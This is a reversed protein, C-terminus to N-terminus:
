AICKLIQPAKRHPPNPIRKPYGVAIPAVLQSEKPIGLDVLLKPDRIEKGMGIWCSGLGSESALLMFHAAILSCDIELTHNDKPGLILVVCPANYFANFNENTLANEYRKMYSDANTEIDKLINQKSEESVRKIWQRNNIIVFQWEQRNGSSPSLCSERIIEKITELAVDKDEFSRISRRKQLLETFNTM